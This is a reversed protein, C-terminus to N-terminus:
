PLTLVKVAAGVVSAVDAGTVESKSNYGKLVFTGRATPTHVEARAEGIAPSTLVSGACVWVRTNPDYAMFGRCGTCCCAAAVALILTSICRM